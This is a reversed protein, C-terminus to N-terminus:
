SLIRLSRAKARWRWPLSEIEAFTGIGPDMAPLYASEPEPATAAFQRRVSREAEIAEGLTELLTAIRKCASRHVPQLALAIRNAERRVAAAFLEREATHEALRDDIEYEIERLKATASEPRREALQRYAGAKQRAVITRHGEADAPNRALSIGLRRADAEDILAQFTAHAALWRTRALEFESPMETSKRLAM